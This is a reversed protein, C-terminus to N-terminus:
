PPALAILRRVAQDSEADRAAVWGRAKAAMGALAPDPTLARAIWSGLMAAPVLATAAAARLAEYAPWREVNPGAIFPCGLRAPELPNHGGVGPVLSGGIVALHALRYWLGMEGLTDAIYVDVGALDAARGRRGAILGVGRAAAEIVEGRERRRPAIVLLPRAADGRGGAVFSRLVIEDEGPHTSAALIVRRDGIAARAEALAAPDATLPPAGFKLDALGDIRAGLSRLRRSSAEDRALILDYAGLLARAAGPFRRWNRWSNPSLGASVLALKAGGARAGLVLNPWIESEVFVALDPRWHGLFGRVADPTDIPAYQHIVDDPLRQGLVEAASRTGCTVLVVLDPRARRLREVLPLISLGEGVSVGHLWVLVGDPRRRGPRGLREDLRALDERGHRARARLMGSALPAVLSTAVGYLRLSLPPSVTM